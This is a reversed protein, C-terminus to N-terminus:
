DYEANQASLVLLIYLALLQELDKQILLNSIFTILGGRNFNNKMGLFNVDCIRLM